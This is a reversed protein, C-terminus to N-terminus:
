PQVTQVVDVLAWPDRHLELIFRLLTARAYQPLRDSHEALGLQIETWADLRGAPVHGPSERISDGLDTEDVDGSCTIGACPIGCSDPGNCRCVPTEVCNGEDYGAPACVVEGQDDRLVIDRITLASLM